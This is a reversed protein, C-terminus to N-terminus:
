DEYNVIFTLQMIYPHNNLIKALQVIYLHHTTQLGNCYSTPVLSTPIFFIKFRTLINQYYKISYNYQM